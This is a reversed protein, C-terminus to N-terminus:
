ARELTVFTYPHPNRADAPHAERSTERWGSEEYDPFWTDGVVEAHVRTLYMRSVLPLAQAYLRAGGVVMVEDADGALDIAADLSTVVEAGDALYDPNRSVVLHRRDPLLGPLSEWTLRGMVIPKGLTLRKFHALDAPLHWPLRNDRGIIRDDSMAAILSLNPLPAM